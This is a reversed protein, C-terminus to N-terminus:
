KGTSACFPFGRAAEPVSRGLKQAAKTSVDAILELQEGTLGGATGLNASAIAKKLDVAEGSISKIRRALGELDRGSAQSLEKTSEVLINFDAAEKLALFASSLAFVNAAITAYLHVLGGLGQAQKAFAKTSNSTWNNIGKANRDTLGESERLEANVARLASRVGKIGDSKVLVRLIQHMEKNASM